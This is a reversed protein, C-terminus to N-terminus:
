RILIRGHARLWSILQEQEDKVAQGNAALIAARDSSVANAEAYACERAKSEELKGKWYAKQIRGNHPKTTPQGMREVQRLVQASGSRRIQEETLPTGDWNKPPLYVCPQNKRQECDPCKVLLPDSTM